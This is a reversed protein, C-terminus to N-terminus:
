TQRTMAANTQRAIELDERARVVVTRAPAGPATIDTDKSAAANRASDVAVGAFEANVTQVRM